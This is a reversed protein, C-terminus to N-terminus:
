RPSPLLTAAESASAPAMAPMSTHRLTGSPQSRGAALIAEMRCSPQCSRSALEPHLAVRARRHGTGRREVGIHPDAHALLVVARLHLGQPGVLEVRRKKRLSTGSAMTAASGAPADRALLDGVLDHVTRLRRDEVLRLVPQVDCFASM